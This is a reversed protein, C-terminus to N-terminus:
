KFVAWANPIVMDGKSIARASSTISYDSIRWQGNASM